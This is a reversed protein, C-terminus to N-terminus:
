ALWTGLQAGLWLIVAGITCATTFVVSERLGLRFFGMCAIAFALYQAAGLVVIREAGHPMNVIRIAEVIAVIALCRVAALLWDGLPRRLRMADVTMAALVLAAFLLIRVSVRSTETLRDGLTLTGDGEFLGPSGAVIGSLVIGVGIAAIVVALWPGGRGSPSLPSSPHETAADTM